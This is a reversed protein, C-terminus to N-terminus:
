AGAKHQRRNASIKVVGGSRTQTVTHHELQGGAASYNVGSLWERPRCCPANRGATRALKFWEVEEHKRSLVISM